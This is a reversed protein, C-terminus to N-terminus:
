EHHLHDQSDQEKPDRETGSDQSHLLHIPESGDPQLLHHRSGSRSGLPLLFIFYGKTVYICLTYIIYEKIWEDM